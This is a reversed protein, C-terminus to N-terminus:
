LLLSFSSSLNYRFCRLHLASLENARQGSGMTPPDRALCLGLLERFSCRPLVFLWWQSPLSMQDEVDWLLFPFSVPITGTFTLASEGVEESQLCAGRWRAGFSSASTWDMGLSGGPAAPGTPEWHAGGGWVPGTCLGPGFSRVRQKSVFLLSGSSHTASAGEKGM